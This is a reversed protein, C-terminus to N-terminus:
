ATGARPFSMTGDEAVAICECMQCAANFGPPQGRVGCLPAGRCVYFLATEGPPCDALLATAAAMAERLADSRELAAADPCDAARPPSVEIEIVEPSHILPKHQSM